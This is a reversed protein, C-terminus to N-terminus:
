FNHIIDNIFYIKQFDFLIRERLLISRQLFIGLSLNKSLDALPSTQITEEM